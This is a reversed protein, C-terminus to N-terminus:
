LNNRMPIGIPAELPNSVVAKLASVIIAPKRPLVEKAPYWIAKLKTANTKIHAMPTALAAVIRTPFATPSDLELFIIRDPQAAKM